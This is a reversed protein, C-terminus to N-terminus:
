AAWRTRPPAFYPPGHHHPTVNNFPALIRARYVSNPCRLPPGMDARKIPATYTNRSMRRMPCHTTTTPGHLYACSHAANLPATGRTTRRPRLIGRWTSRACHTCRPTAAHTATCRPAHAVSNPQPPLLPIRHYTCLPAAHYLHPWFIDPPKHPVFCRAPATFLTRRPPTRRPVVSPLRHPPHEGSHHGPQGRLSQTHTPAAQTHTTHTYHPCPVVCASPLPLHHPPTPTPPPSSIHWTYTAMQRRVPYPRYHYPFTHPPTHTGHFPHWGPAAHTTDNSHCAFAHHAFLGTKGM